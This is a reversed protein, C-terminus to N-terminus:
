TNKCFILATLIRWVWSVGIGYAVKAREVGELGDYCIGALALYEWLSNVAKSM